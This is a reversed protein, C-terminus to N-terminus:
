WDTNDLGLVLRFGGGGQGLGSQWGAPISYGTQTQKSVGVYDGFKRQFSPYAYFNGLLNTDYGEMIVCTSIVLSWGIAKRNAQVAEWVTQDKEDIGNQQAAVSLARGDWTEDRWSRDFNGNGAEIHSIENINKVDTMISFQDKSATHLLLALTLPSPLYISPARFILVHKKEQKVSHIIPNGSGDLSLRTRSHGLSPGSQDSPGENQIDAYISQLVYKM